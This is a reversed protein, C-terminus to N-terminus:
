DGDYQVRLAGEDGRVYKFKEAARLKIFNGAFDDLCEAPTFTKAEGYYILRYGKANHKYQYSDQCLTVLSSSSGYQLDDIVLTTDKNIQKYRLDVGNEQSYAQAWDLSTQVDYPYWKKLMKKGFNFQYVTRTKASAFCFPSAQGPVYIVYDADEDEGDRDEKTAMEPFHQALVIKVDDFSMGLYFGDLEFTTKAAERAKARIASFANEAAAEAQAKGEAPMLSMVLKKAEGSKVGNYVKMDLKQQPIRKVLDQEFDGESVSGNTLIEYAMEPTICSSFAFRNKDNACLISKMVATSFKPFRAVVERGRKYDATANQRRWRGCSVREMSDVVWTVIKVIDDASKVLKTADAASLLVGLNDEEWQSNFYRCNGVSWEVRHLIHEDTMNKLLATRTDADTIFLRGGSTTMDLLKDCVEADKIDAALTALRRVIDERQRDTVQYYQGCVKGDFCLAVLFQADPSVEIARDLLNERYKMGKYLALAQKVEDWNLAGIVRSSFYPKPYDQDATKSYERVTLKASDANEMASPHRAIVDFAAGSKACDFREAALTVIEAEVSGSASANEIIRLLLENSTALNVFQIRDRYSFEMLGLSDKGTKAIAYINDEAKRVEQPDSSALQARTSDVSVCGSMALSAMLVAAIMETKM